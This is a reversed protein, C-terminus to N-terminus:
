RLCEENVAVGGNKSQWYTLCYLNVAINDIEGVLQKDWREFERIVNDRDDRHVVACADITNFGQLEREFGLVTRWWEDGATTNRLVKLLTVSYIYAQRLAVGISGSRRKKVEWVAPHSAGGVGRRAIIDTNGKTQVPCGKCASLPLPMQFYCDFLRVPQIGKLKGAFKTSDDKSMEKLLASQVANESAKDVDVVAGDEVFRQRFVRANGSTWETKGLCDIIDVNLKIAKKVHADTVCLVLGTQRRILTGVEIGQVRISFHPSGSSKAASVSLWVELPRWERFGRRGNRYQDEARLIEKIWNDTRGGQVKKFSNWTREINDALSARM